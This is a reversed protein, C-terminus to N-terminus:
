PTGHDFVWLLETDLLKSSLGFTVETQDPFEVHLHLEASVVGDVSIVRRRGNESAGTLMIGIGPPSERTLKYDVSSEESDIYTVRAYKVHSYIVDAYDVSSIEFGSYRPAAYDVQANNVAVYKASAYSVEGTHRRGYEVQPYACPGYDIQSLPWGSTPRPSLQVATQWAESFAKAYESPISVKLSRHDVGCLVLEIRSGALPLGVDNIHIHGDSLYFQRNSSAPQKPSCDNECM